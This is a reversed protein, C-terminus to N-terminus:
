KPQIIHIFLNKHYNLEIPDSHEPKAHKGPTPFTIIDNSIKSTFNVAILFLHFTSINSPYVM